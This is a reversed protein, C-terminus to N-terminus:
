CLAAAPSPSSRPAGTTTWDRRPVQAAAGGARPRGGRLFGRVPHGTERNAAADAPDTMAACYSGTSIRDSGHITRLRIGAFIRAACQYVLTKRPALVHFSVSLLEVQVFFEYSACFVAFVVVTEDFADIATFLGHFFALSRPALELVHKGFFTQLFFQLVEVFVLLAVAVARAGPEQCPSGTVM